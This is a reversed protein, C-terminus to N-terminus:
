HQHTVDTVVRIYARDEVHACFSEVVVVLYDVAVSSLERLEKVTRDDAGTEFTERGHSLANRRRRVFELGSADDVYPKRVAKRLKPKLRLNVSLRKALKAISKDDWNGSEPEISLTHDLSESNVINTIAGTVKEVLKDPRVQHASSRHLGLYSKTWESLWEENYREPGVLSLEECVATLLRNMVAEVVNYIHLIYASKLIRIQVFDASKTTSEIPSIAELELAEILKLHRELDDKRDALYPSIRETM